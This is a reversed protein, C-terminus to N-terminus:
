EQDKDQVLEVFRQVLDPDFQTGANRKLERVAEDRTMAGRYPRNSIMADYADAVALIRCPLPIDGGSHGLPYGRGDWREHHKLIYEAIPELDPVSSAIRHGIECHQRMQRWEEETLPGPKFLIHDPIGVKGLDHFRALLTLDNLFDQTLDLSHALSVALERMRDCHGETNFDRAQMSGTLAQLIASRASGESQIKERYMRNDAERFLAQMDPYAGQAVTHGLSLSLPIEPDAGNYDQIARRLRQQILEVVESGTEPLLVAFEDGGIRAIIDSSRFNHRLIVSINILMQDGSQHGLTDNVFKLGDLDCVVIGIPAHRGDSLRKMEEEFLNRNYLGTLSDYLSMEKLKQEMQKRETVDRITGVAHWGDQFEVSSLSLEIPFEEGNKRMATLQITKGVVYGRGSRQFEPFSQDYAEHYREPAFLSHLNRGLAEASTYGFLMEASHNLYSINGLPDMMVIVDQASDTIAQLKKENDRLAEEAWKRETIDSGSAISKQTGPIMDVALFLYRTEGRRTIFRFEYQQPAANPDRRRLYHNERMWAVDDPHAFETWSKKGEIEYGSYGSLEELISNALSITTDAEIIFMATGSTEFIARYYNESRRLTEEIQKRETIDQVFGVLAHIRGAADTRAEGKVICDRIQNDTGIVRLELEYPAGENWCREVAEQLKTYDESPYFSQQDSFSPAGDEPDRRFIRFLEDSWWIRDNVIDWEWSGVSAIKETRALMAHQHRFKEEAQKRQTIDRTVGQLGVPNGTEDFLLRGNIELWVLEGQKAYLYAEFSVFDNDSSKQYAEDIKEFILRLQDEGFYDYVSTGVWEEATYGSIAYIAPNVYTFVLNTDMTWICDVTNEALLRYMKENYQLDKEKLKKDTIDRVNSVVGCIKGYRDKYPYFSVEVFKKGLAPTDIWQQFTKNNGNLCENFSPKIYKKFEEDGLYESVTKGKIYESKTGFYKEYTDNVIVYRYNRDLLAIGDPTCSIINKYQELYEQLSNKETIDTHTGVMRRARGQEDREVARGRGLIWRWGGDRTQMRFETEFSESRNEICDRNAQLVAERDQVHIHDKWFSAHPLVEEQSYGLMATYAPSYYVEDTTLDWDWIGDRTAEMAWQFREESRRLAKEAQKRQTMDLGVKAVGELTGQPSRLPYSRIHLCGGESSEVEGEQPEGTQISRQVPCTECPSERGHWLEFCHRGVLNEPAENLSNGVALNAWQILLDLDLTAMLESVSDLFINKHDQGSFASDM